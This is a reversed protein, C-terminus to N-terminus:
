SVGIKCDDPQIVIEDQITAHWRARPEKLLYRNRKLAKQCAEEINDADIEIFGSVQVCYRM